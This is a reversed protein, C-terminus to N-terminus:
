REKKKGEEFKQTASFQVEFIIDCLERRALMAGLDAALSGPTPGVRGISSAGGFIGSSKTDPSDASYKSNDINAIFNVHPETPCAKHDMRRTAFRITPLPKTEDFKPYKEEKGEKENKLENRVKGEIKAEEQRPPRETPPLVEIASTEVLRPMEVDSM